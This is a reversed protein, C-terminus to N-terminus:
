VIMKKEETRGYLQYVIRDIEKELASTDAKGDKKKAALIKEVREEMACRIKSELKSGSKGRVAHLIQSSPLLRAYTHNFQKMYFLNQASYGSGFEPTLKRSLLEIM